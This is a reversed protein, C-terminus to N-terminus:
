MGSNGSTSVVRRPMAGNTSPRRTTADMSRRGSMRQVIGREYLFHQGLGKSPRIGLRSLLSAWGRRNTPLRDIISQDSM